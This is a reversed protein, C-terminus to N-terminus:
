AGMREKKIYENNHAKGQYIEEGNSYVLLTNLKVNEWRNKYLIDVPKTCFCTFGKARYSYLSNKYNSHVYLHEGDSILLNLKGYKSLKLIVSEICKIKVKIDKIDNVKSRENLRKKLYVLIRESDTEGHGSISNLCSPNISGNHALLWETNNIDQVFPHTNLYSKKGVTAYRIHAIVLKGPVYSAINKAYESKCADTAQKVLTLENNNYYIGVGWGHPHRNSNRFFSSVVKGIEYQKDGSFGLLMCVNDCEKQNM